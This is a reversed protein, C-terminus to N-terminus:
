KVNHARETVYMCMNQVNVFCVMGIADIADIAGIADEPQNKRDAYFM